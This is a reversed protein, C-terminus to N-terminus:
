PTDDSQRGETGDDGVTNRYFQKWFINCLKLTDKTWYYVDYHTSRNRPDGEVLGALLLREIDFEKKM